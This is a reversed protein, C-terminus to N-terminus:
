YERECAYSRFYTCPIDNWARADGNSALEACEEVGNSDNPEGFHWLWYAFPEGTIWTWVGEQAADSAGLHVQRGGVVTDFLFANEAADSVTVLHADLDQCRLRATTWTTQAEFLMYCHGNGPHVGNVDGAV